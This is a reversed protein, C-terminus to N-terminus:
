VLKENLSLGCVLSCLTEPQRYLSTASLLTPFPVVRGTPREWSRYRFTAIEAIERTPYPGVSSPHSWDTVNSRLPVIPAEMYRRRARALANRLGGRISHPEM